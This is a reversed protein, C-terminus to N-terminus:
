ELPEKGIEVVGAGLNKAILKRVRGKFIVSDDRQLLLTRWQRMTIRQTYDEFVWHANNRETEPKGDM